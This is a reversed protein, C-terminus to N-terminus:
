HRAPTLSWPNGSDLFTSGGNWTAGYGPSLTTTGQVPGFNFNTTHGGSQSDYFGQGPQARGTALYSDKVDDASPLVGSTATSTAHLHLAVDPRPPTTQVTLALCPTAALAGFGLAVVFARLRMPLEKLSPFSPIGARAATL